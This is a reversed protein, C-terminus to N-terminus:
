RGTFARYRAAAARLRASPAPPNLLAEVFTATERATLQMAAHARITEEAAAQASRMVFDTLSCGTLGAAQELVQKQEASMRAAFRERKPQAPHAAAM